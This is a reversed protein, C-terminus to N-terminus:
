WPSASHVEQPTQLNKRQRCTQGHGAGQQGAGDGRGELLRHVLRCHVFEQRHHDEHFLEGPLALQQALGPGNVSAPDEVRVVQSSTSAM